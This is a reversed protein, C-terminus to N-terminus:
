CTSIIKSVATISEVYAKALGLVAGLGSIGVVLVCVLLLRLTTFLISLFYSRPKTRGRFLEPLTSVFSGGKKSRSGKVNKGVEQTVESENIFISGTNDQAGRSVITRELEMAQRQENRQRAQEVEERSRRVNQICIDENHKATRHM